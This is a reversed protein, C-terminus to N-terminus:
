WRSTRRYGPGSACLLQLGREALFGYTFTHDFGTAGGHSLLMVPVTEPSISVYEAEGKETVVIHRACTVWVTLVVTAIALVCFGATTM